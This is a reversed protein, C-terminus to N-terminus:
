KVSPSFAWDQEFEIRHRRGHDELRQQDDDSWDADYKFQLSVKSTARLVTVIRKRGALGLAMDRVQLQVENTNRTQRLAAILQTSSAKSIRLGVYCTDRRRSLWGSLAHLIGSMQADSLPTESINLRGLQQSSALLLVIGEVVDNTVSISPLVLTQLQPMHPLATLSANELKIKRLTPIQSLVRVIQTVDVSEVMALAFGVLRSGAIKAAFAEAPLKDRRLALRRLQPPVPPLSLDLLFRTVNPVLLLKLMTLSTSSLLAHAVKKAAAPAFDIGIIKLERANPRALWAVLSSADHLLTLRDVTLRLRRLQPCSVRLVGLVDDLQGQDVACFQWHIYLTRLQACHVLSRPDLRMMFPVNIAMLTISEVWDGYNARLRAVDQVCAHITTSPALGVRGRNARLWNEDVCLTRMAPLARALLSRDVGPMAQTNPFPWLHYMHGPALLTRLADLADDIAFAPLATLFAAVDDADYVCHIIQRVIPPLWVRVAM